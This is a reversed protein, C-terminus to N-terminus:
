PFFPAFAFFILFNLPVGHFGERGCKGHYPHTGGRGQDFRLADRKWIGRGPFIEPRERSEPETM